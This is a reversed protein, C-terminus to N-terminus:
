RGESTDERRDEVYAELPSDAAAHPLVDLFRREGMFTTEYCRARAVLPRLPPLSKGGLLPLNMTMTGLRHLTAGRSVQRLGVGPELALELIVEPRVPETIMFRDGAASVPFQEGLRHLADGPVDLVGERPVVRGVDDIQVTTHGPLTIGEREARRGLASLSSVLYGPMLVPVDRVLAVAGDLQVADDRFPLRLREIETLFARALTAVELTRVVAATRRYLIHFRRGGAVSPEGDEVVISFFPDDEMDDPVRYEDLVHGVWEAFAESTTRVEIREDGIRYIQSAVWGLRDLKEM